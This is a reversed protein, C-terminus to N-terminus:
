RAELLEEFDKLGESLMRRLIRTTEVWQKLM